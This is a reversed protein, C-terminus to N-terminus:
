NWMTLMGYHALLLSHAAHPSKSFYFEPICLFFAGFKLWSKSGFHGSLDLKPRIKINLLLLIKILIIFIHQYSCYLFGSRLNISSRENFCTQVKLFGWVNEKLVTLRKVRIWATIEGPGWRGIDSVYRNILFALKSLPSTQKYELKDNRIPDESFLLQGVM